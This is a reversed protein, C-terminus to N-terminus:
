GVRHAMVGEGGVGGRPGDGGGWGGRGTPWKAVKIDAAGPGEGEGVGRGECGANGQRGGGWEDKVGQMGGGGM